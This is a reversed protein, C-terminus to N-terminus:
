FVIHRAQEIMIREIEWASAIQNIPEAAAQNSLTLVQRIQIHTVAHIASAFSMDDNNCAGVTWSLMVRSAKGCGLTGLMRALALFVDVM